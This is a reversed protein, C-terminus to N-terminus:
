WLFLKPEITDGNITLLGCGYNPGWRKDTPSGPNFFLIERERVRHWMSMPNHSHGFVLCNIDDEFEFMSFAHAATVGNGPFQDFPKQYGGQGRDGHCLGITVNEVQFRRSRPLELHAPDNNGRVGVLPAITELERWARRATFDGAHIIFDVGRFYDFVREPIGRRGTESLHTDSIVGITKM